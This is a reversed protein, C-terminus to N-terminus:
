RKAAYATAFGLAFSGAVIAVIGGILVPTSVLTKKEVEAMSAECSAVRKAARMATPKDFCTADFPVPGGKDVFVYVAEEKVPADPAQSLIAALLLAKM